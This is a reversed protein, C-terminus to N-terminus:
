VASGYDIRLSRYFFHAPMERPDGRGFDGSMGAGTIEEPLEVVEDITWANEERSTSGRSSKGSQGSTNRRKIQQTYLPPLASTTGLRAPLWSRAGNKLKTASASGYLEGSM